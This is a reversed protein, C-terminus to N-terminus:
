IPAGRSPSVAMDEYEMSPSRKIKTQHTEDNDFHLGRVFNSNVM